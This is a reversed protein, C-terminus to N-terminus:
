RGPHYRTWAGNGSTHAFRGACMWRLLRGADTASIGARRATASPTLGDPGAADLVAEVRDVTAYEEDTLGDPDPSATVASAAPLVYFNRRWDGTVALEALGYQPDDWRVDLIGDPRGTGLGVVTGCRGGTAQQVRDNLQVEVTNARPGPAQAAEVPPADTLDWGNPSETALDAMVAPACPACLYIRTPTLILAAILTAPRTCPHEENPGTANECIIM